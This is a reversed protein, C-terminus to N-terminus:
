TFIGILSEVKEVTAEANNKVCDDYLYVVLNIQQAPTLDTGISQVVTMCQKFIVKNITSASNDGLLFATTSGLVEALKNIYRPRTVKGSEVNQISQHPINGILAGLESQTIDMSLRLQKVREGIVANSTVDTTKKVM